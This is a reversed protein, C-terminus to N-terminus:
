RDVVATYHSNKTNVELCYNLTVICHLM